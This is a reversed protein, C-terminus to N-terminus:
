LDDFIELLDQRFFEKNRTKAAHHDIIYDTIKELRVPSEM